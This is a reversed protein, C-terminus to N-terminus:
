LPLTGERLKLLTANAPIGVYAFGDLNWENEHAQIWAHQEDLTAFWTGHIRGRRTAREVHLLNALSRLKRRELQAARVTIKRAWWYPEDDHDHSLWTRLLVLRHNVRALLIKTSLSPAPAPSPALANDVTM